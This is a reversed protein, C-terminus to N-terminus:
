LVNLAFLLGFAASVGATLALAGQQWRPAAPWPRFELLLLRLGGSLHAALLLVLGIESLKVLPHDTWRLFSELRGAGELAQGLVWFHLPLFVSLAVGSVRHVLFAWFCRHNRSRLDNRM